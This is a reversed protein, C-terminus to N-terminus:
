DGRASKSDSPTATSADSTSAITASPRVTSPTIAWCRRRRAIDGRQEVTGLDSTVDLARECPAPLREVRVEALLHVEALGVHEDDVDAPAARDLVVERRDERIVPQM